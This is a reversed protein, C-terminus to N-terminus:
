VVRFNSSHNYLCFRANKNFRAICLLFPSSPSLAANDVLNLPLCGYVRVYVCVFFLEDSPHTLVDRLKISGSFANCSTKWGYSITRLAFWSLLQFQWLNQCPPPFFLVVFVSFLIIFFFLCFGDVGIIIKRMLYKYAKCDNNLNLHMPRTYLFDFWVNKLRIKIINFFVVIRSVPYRSMLCFWYAYIFICTSFIM